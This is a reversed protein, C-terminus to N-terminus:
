MVNDLLFPNSRLENGINTEPGHGSYVLVDDDLKFLVNKISHMLEDLSGGNLDTRGVSGNFLVDGVVVFKEDKASLAISGKSHGPLHLIDIKSKGFEVVDGHSLYYDVVPPADIRMGYLQGAREADKLNSDDDKHAYFPIKYAQKVYNVGAVHDVHCHTNVIKVPILENDKIFSDLTGQEQASVCGPDVIICEKTDDYIVFSNVSFDNFVFSKIKM